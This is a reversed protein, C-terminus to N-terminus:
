PSRRDTSSVSRQNEVSTHAPNKRDGALPPRTHGLGHNDQAGPARRGRSAASSDQGFLADRLFGDIDIAIRPEADPSTIVAWKKGPADLKKLFEEDCTGAIVPFVPRDAEFGWLITALLLNSDKRVRAVVGARHNGRNAEVKLRLKSISFFALNLGSLIASQSICLVIGVWTLWNM